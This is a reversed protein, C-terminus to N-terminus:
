LSSRNLSILVIGNNTRRHPLRKVAETVFDGWEQFRERWQVLFLMDNQWNLRWISEWYMQSYLGFGVQHRYEQAILYEFGSDNLEKITTDYNGLNRLRGDLSSLGPIDLLAIKLKDHPLYSPFPVASAVKTNSPIDGLLNLYSSQHEHREELSAYFGPFRTEMMSPLAGPAGLASLIPALLSIQFASIFFKNMLRTSFFYITTRPARSHSRAFLESFTVLSFVFIFPHNYRIIDVSRIQTPAAATALALCAYAFLLSNLRSRGVRYLLGMAILFVPLSTDLVCEVFYELRPLSRSFTNLQHDITPSAGLPFLVSGFSLYYNYITPALVALYTAGHISAVILGQRDKMCFARFLETLLFCVSFVAFNNRLSSLAVLCIVLGWDVQTKCSIQTTQKNVIEFLLLLFCIGTQQSANNINPMTSLSIFLFLLPWSVFRETSKADQKEYALEFIGVLIVFYCLLVEISQYGFTNSFISPLAQLVLQGGYSAISRFCFPDFQDGQYLLKQTLGIYAMDDDAINLPLHFYISLRALLGFLTTIYLVHPINEHEAFLAKLPSILSIKLYLCFFINISMWCLIWWMLPMGFPLYILSTAVYGAMGLTMSSAIGLDKKLLHSLVRGGMFFALLAVLCGLLGFIRVQVSFVTAM